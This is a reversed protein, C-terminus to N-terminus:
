FGNNRAFVPAEAWAQLRAPLVLHRAKVEQPRVVNASPIANAATREHLEQAAFHRSAISGALVLLFLAGGLLLVRRVRRADAVPEAAPPLPAEPMTSMERDAASPRPM